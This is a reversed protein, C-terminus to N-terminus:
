DRLRSIANAVRLAWAEASDLEARASAYRERGEESGDRAFIADHFEQQARALWHSALHRLRAASQPTVALQEPAMLEQEEPYLATAKHFAAHETTATM